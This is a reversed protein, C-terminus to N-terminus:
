KDEPHHDLAPNFAPDDGRYEIGKGEDVEAEKLPSRSRERGYVPSRSRDRPSPSRSRGRGGGNPDEFIKLRCSDFPNKFETDDLKRIAREMDDATEFEVIGYASDRERKVDTFAPRVVKRFFDKLDQWSASPPLGEM